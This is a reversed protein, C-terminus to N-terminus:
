PRIQSSPTFRHTCFQAFVMAPVQAESHIIVNDTIESIAWEVAPAIDQADQARTEPSWRADRAPHDTGAVSASRNTPLVNSRPSSRYFNMRALYGALNPAASADFELEVGRRKLELLLTTLWAAGDPFLFGDEPVTVRLRDPRRVRARTVGRSPARQRELGADTGNARRKRGIEARDM